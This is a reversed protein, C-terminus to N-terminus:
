FNLSNIIASMQDARLGMEAAITEINEGAHYRQAAITAKRNNEDRKIGLYEDMRQSAVEFDIEQEDLYDLFSDSVPYSIMIDAQIEPNDTQRILTERTLWNRACEIWGIDSHPSVPIASNPSTEDDWEISEVTEWKMEWGNYQRTEIFTPAETIVQESYYLDVNHDDEFDKSEWNQSHYTHRDTMDTDDRTDSSNNPNGMPQFVGDSDFDSYIDDGYEDVGVYQPNQSVHEDVWRPDEEDENEDAEKEELTKRAKAEEIKYESELRDFVQIPDQSWPVLAGEPCNPRTKSLRHWMGFRRNKLERKAYANGNLFVERYLEQNSMQKYNLRKYAPKPVDLDDLSIRSFQFVGNKIETHITIEGNMEQLSLIDARIKKHDHYRILSGCAGCHTEDTKPSGCIVCGEILGIIDDRIQSEIKSMERMSKALESSIPFIGEKELYKNSTLLMWNAYDELSLPTAVTLNPHYDIKDKVVIWNANAWKKFNDTLPTSDKIEQTLTGNNLATHRTCLNNWNQQFTM